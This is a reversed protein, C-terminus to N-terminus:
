LGPNTAVNPGATNQIARDTQPSGSTKTANPIRRLPRAPPLNSKGEAPWLDRLAPSVDSKVPQQVVVRGQAFATPSMITAFFLLSLSAFIKKMAREGKQRSEQM